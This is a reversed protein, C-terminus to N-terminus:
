NYSCRIRHTDFNYAIQYSIGFYSVFSIFRSKRIEYGYVPRSPVNEIINGNPTKVSELVPGSTSNDGPVCTVNGALTKVLSDVLVLLNTARLNDRAHQSKNFSFDPEDTNLHNLYWFDALCDVPKMTTDYKAEGSTYNVSVSYNARCPSCTLNRKTVLMFSDEDDPEVLLAIPPTTTVVFTDIDFLPDRGGDEDPAAEVPKWGDTNNWGGNFVELGFGSYDDTVNTTSQTCQVSPGQFEVTYTCNPGCPSPVTYVRESILSIGASSSIINPM